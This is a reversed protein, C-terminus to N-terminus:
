RVRGRDACEAEHRWTPAPPLGVEDNPAAVTAKGAALEDDGPAM